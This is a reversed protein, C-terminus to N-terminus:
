PRRPTTSLSRFWLCRHVTVLQVIPDWRTTSEDRCWCFESNEFAHLSRAGSILVAAPEVEAAEHAHVVEHTITEDGL